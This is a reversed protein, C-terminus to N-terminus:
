RGSVLAVVVLLVAGWLFAPPGEWLALSWGLASRIWRGVRGLRYEWSLPDVLADLLHVLRDGFGQREWVWALAVAGVVGGVGSGLAAGWAVAGAPRPGLVLAGVGLLLLALAAAVARRTVTFPLPRWERGPAWLAHAYPALALVDAALLWALLPISFSASARAAFAPTLPFGALALLALVRVWWTREGERDLALLGLGFGAAAWPLALYGLPAALTVAALMTGRNAALTALSRRGNGWANLASALLVLLALPPLVGWGPVSSWGQSLIRVVLALGLVPRVAWVFGRAGSPLAEEARTQHTAPYVGAAWLGAVGVVTLVWGDWAQGGFAMELYPPALLLVAALLWLPGPFGPLPYDKGEPVSLVWLRVALEWLALGLLFTFLNAAFLGLMTGTLAALVWGSWRGSGAGLWLAVLGLGAAVLALPISPGDARLTLAGLGAGFDGGPWLVLRPPPRFLAGALALVLGGAGILGLSRALVLHGRRGLVLTLLAFVAPWAGIFIWIQWVGEREM